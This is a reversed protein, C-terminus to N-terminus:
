KIKWQLAYGHDDVSKNHYERLWAYKSMVEPPHSKALEVKIATMHDEVFRLENRTYSETLIQTKREPDQEARFADLDAPANWQQLWGLMLHFYDLCHCEKGTKPNKVLVFFNNNPAIDPAYHSNHPHESFFRYFRDDCSFMPYFPQEEAEYARAMASSLLIDGQNDRFHYGLALGGRLFIGRAVALGQCMALESLEGALVDFVGNVQALPSNFDVTVVLADSLAIVKKSTVDQAEKTMTNDPDKDFIKHVSRVDAYLRMLDEDSAVDYLRKKFGLIDIFAALVTNRQPIHDDTKM